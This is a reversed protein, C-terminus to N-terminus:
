MYRHETHVLRQGWAENEYLGCWTTISQKRNIKLMRAAECRMENRVDTRGKQSGLLGHIKSPTPPHRSDVLRACCLRVKDYLSCARTGRFGLVYIYLPLSSYRM